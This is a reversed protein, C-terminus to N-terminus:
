TDRVVQEVVEKECTVTECAVRPIGSHQIGCLMSFGHGSSPKLAPKDCTMSAACETGQM